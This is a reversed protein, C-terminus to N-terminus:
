KQNESATETFWQVAHQVSIENHAENLFWQCNQNNIQQYHESWFFQKLDCTLIERMHSHVESAKVSLWACIVALTLSCNARQVILKLATVNTSLASDVDVFKLMVEKKVAWQQLVATVAQKQLTSFTLSESKFIEAKHWAIEKITSSLLRVHNMAISTVATVISTTIINIADFERDTHTEYITMNVKKEIFVHFFLLTLLQLYWSIDLSLTIQDSLKDWIKFLCTIFLERSISESNICIRKCINIMHSSTYLEIKQSYDTINRHM